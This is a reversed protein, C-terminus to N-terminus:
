SAGNEKGTSKEIVIKDGRIILKTYKPSITLVAPALSRTRRLFAAENRHRGSGTEERVELMCARCDPHCEREDRRRPKTFVYAASVGDSEWIAIVETSDLDVYM